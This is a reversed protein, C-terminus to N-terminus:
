FYHVLFFFFFFTTFHYLSFPVEKNYVCGGLGLYCSKWSVSEAGGRVCGQDGAKGEEKRREKWIEQDEM